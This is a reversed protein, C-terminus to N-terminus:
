SSTSSLYSNIAKHARGAKSMELRLSDSQSHSYQSLIKNKELIFQIGKALEEADIKPPKSFLVKIALDRHQELEVVDEWQGDEALSLQKKTDRIIAQLQQLDSM